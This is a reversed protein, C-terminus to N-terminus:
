YLVVDGTKVARQQWDPLIDCIGLKEAKQVQILRVKTVFTDEPPPRRVTLELQPIGADPDQLLEAMFADSLAVVVFNWQPEVAAVEGKVGPDVKASIVGQAVPAQQGAGPEAEIQRLRENEQQLQEVEQELGLKDEEIQAIQRMQDAIQDELSRKEAELQAIRQNLSAIESNLRAIEAELDEITKLSRRHAQKLENLQEITRVLEERVTTLLLRTENLRNLQEEAKGLVDNLLGQMTGPGTTVRNGQLDREPKGTAPDLKYYMMLQQQKQRTQLDMTERDTLELAHRYDDWFMSREPDDLVESTTPAIDKKPYRPPTEVTAPEAEITTALATLARELKQARGKLLERKMFLMVGLALAAISLILLFVVLVKLLKTM